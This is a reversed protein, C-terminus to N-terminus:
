HNQAAGLTPVYYGWNRKWVCVPLDSVKRVDPPLAAFEIWFRREDRCSPQLVGYSHIKVTVSRAGAELM